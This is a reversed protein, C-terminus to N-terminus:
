PFCVVVPMETVLSALTIAYISPKEDVKIVPKGKPVIVGVMCLLFPFYIIPRLPFSPTGTLLEMSPWESAARLMGLAFSHPM